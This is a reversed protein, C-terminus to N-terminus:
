YITDIVFESTLFDQSGRETFFDTTYELCKAFLLSVAFSFGNLHMNNIHLHLLHENIVFLQLQIGKIINAVPEGVHDTWM